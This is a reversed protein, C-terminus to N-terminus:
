IKEVGGDSYLVLEESDQPIVHVTTAGGPWLVHVREPIGNHLNM